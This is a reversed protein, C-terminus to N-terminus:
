AAEAYVEDNAAKGLDLINTLWDHYWRLERTIDEPLLVIQEVSDRIWKYTWLVKPSFLKDASDLWHLMAAMELVKIDQSGLENEKGKPLQTKEFQGLWWTTNEIRNM